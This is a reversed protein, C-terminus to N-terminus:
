DETLSLREAIARSPLAIRKLVEELDQGLQYLAESPDSTRLASTIIEFLNRVRTQLAAAIKSALEKSPFVALLEM